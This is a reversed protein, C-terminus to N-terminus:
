SPKLVAALRARLERNVELLAQGLSASNPDTETRGQIDEISVDLAHLLHALDDGSLTVSFSESPNELREPIPWGRWELKSRYFEITCQVIHEGPLAQGSAKRAALLAELKSRNFDFVDRIPEIAVGRTTDRTTFAAYVISPTRANPMDRTRTVGGAKIACRPKKLGLPM